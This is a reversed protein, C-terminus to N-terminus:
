SQRNRSSYHDSLTTLMTIIGSKAKRDTMMGDLASLAKFGMEQVLFATLLDSPAKAELRKDAGDLAACASQWAEFSASRREGARGGSGGDVRAVLSSTPIRGFTSLYSDAFRQGARAQDPTVDGSLALVDLPRLRTSARPTSTSTAATTTSM